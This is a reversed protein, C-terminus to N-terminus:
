RRCALGEADEPVILLVSRHFYTSRGPDDRGVPRLRTYELFARARAIDSFQRFTRNVREFAVRGPRMPVAGCHVIPVAWAPMAGALAREAVFDRPSEELAQRMLQINRGAVAIEVAEHQHSRRAGETQEFQGHNRHQAIAHCGGIRVIAHPAVLSLNALPEPVGPAKTSASSRQVRM